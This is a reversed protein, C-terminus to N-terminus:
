AERVTRSYLSLRKDFIFKLWLRTWSAHAVLNDYIEPALAKVRPLRNWAVAPFDHHENHYGVNFALRNLPGYYSYTEQDPVILYHEQIWRAGLPHLGISFLFSLALYLLAAPGMFMLVLGDAALVAMWNLATWRTLLNVTRVRQPRLIMFVPYFLMWLAKMLSSNGVLKAEWPSALDADLELVGQYAHHKLHYGRFSIAAPIVNCCDALVAALQNAYRRRFILNHAAEHIMVYMAHSAFAGACWAVVGVLWVPQERLAFAMAFQFAVVAVIVAFSWANPGFLARVEPHTTLIAKARAGHPEPLHSHQFDTTSQVM